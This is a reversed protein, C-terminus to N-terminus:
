RLKAVDTCFAFSHWSHCAQARTKEAALQEQASHLDATADRQSREASAAEKQAEDLQRRLDQVQAAGTEIRGEADQKFKGHQAQTGHQWAKCWKRIWSM